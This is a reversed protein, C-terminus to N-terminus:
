PAPPFASETALIIKFVVFSSLLMSTTQMILGFQLGLKCVCSSIKSLLKWIDHCLEQWIKFLELWFSLPSRLVFVTHDWAVCFLQLSLSDHIRMVFSCSNEKVRKKKRKKKNYRQSSPHWSCRYYDDNWLVYLAFWWVALRLILCHHTATTEWYFQLFINM